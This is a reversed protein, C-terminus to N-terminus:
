CYLSWFSTLSMTRTDKKTLKSCTECRKRNKNDVWFLNINTPVACKSFIESWVQKTINFSSVFFLKYLKDGKRLYSINCIKLIFWQPFKQFECIFYCYYRAYSCFCLLLRGTTNQLFSTRLSIECFECSFVQALTEKKVFICGSAQM